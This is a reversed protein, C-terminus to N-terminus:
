RGVETLSKDMALVASAGYIIAMPRSRPRNLVWPPLGNKGLRRAEREAEPQKLAVACAIRAHFWTREDHHHAYLYQVADNHWNGDILFQGYM